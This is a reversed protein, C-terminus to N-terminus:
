MFGGHIIAYILCGIPITIVYVIGVLVAVVLLISKVAEVVRKMFDHGRKRDSAECGPIGGTKNEMGGIICFVLYVILLILVIKDQKNM